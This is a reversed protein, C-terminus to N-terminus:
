YIKYTPIVTFKEYLQINFHNSIEAIAEEETDFDDIFKLVCLEEPSDYIADSHEKHTLIDAEVIAYLSFKKVM